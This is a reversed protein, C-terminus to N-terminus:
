IYMSVVLGQILTASRLPKLPQTETETETESDSQLVQEAM